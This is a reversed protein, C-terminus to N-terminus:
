EKVHIIDYCLLGSFMTKLDQKFDNSDLGSIDNFNNKKM